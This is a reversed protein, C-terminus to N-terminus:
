KTIEDVLWLCTEGKNKAQFLLATAYLPDLSGRFRWTLENRLLGNRSKSLLNQQIINYIKHVQSLILFYKSLPIYVFFVPTLMWALNSVWDMYTRAWRLSRCCGVSFDIVLDCVSDTKSTWICWFSLCHKLRCWDWTSNWLLWCSDNFYTFTWFKNPYQTVIKQAM